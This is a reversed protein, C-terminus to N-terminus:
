KWDDGTWQPTATPDPLVSACQKCTRLAEDANFERTIRLPDAEIDALDFSVSHLMHGCHDCFWAIGDQESPARRRKSRWDSAARRAARRIIFTRPYCFSKTRTSAIVSRRAMKSRQLFVHGRLQYFIEDYPDLYYDNRANPEKIIQFIHDSNKFMDRNGITKSSLPMNEEIWADLSFAEPLKM